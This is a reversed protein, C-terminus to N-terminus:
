NSPQSAASTGASNTATVTFTYRTANTLGTVTIPSATGSATLGGPHTADPSSTVTYGTIPAGGDQLGRASPDAAM